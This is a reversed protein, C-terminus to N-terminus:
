WRMSAASLASTGRRVGAPEDLLPESTPRGHPVRVRTAFVLPTRARRRRTVGPPTRPRERVLTHIATHRVFVDEAEGGEVVVAGGAQQAVALDDGGGLLLAERALLAVGRERAPGDLVAQALAPM